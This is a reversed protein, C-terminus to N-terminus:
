SSKRELINNLYIQMIIVKVLQWQSKFKLFIPQQIDM